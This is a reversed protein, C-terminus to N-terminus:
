SNGKWIHCVCKYRSCSDSYIREVQCLLLLIKILPNLYCNIGFSVFQDHKSHVLSVWLFICVAWYYKAEHTTVFHKHWQYTCIKFISPTLNHKCFIYACIISTYIIYAHLYSFNSKQPGTNKLEEGSLISNQSLLTSYWKYRYNTCIIQKVIVDWKIVKWLRQVNLM